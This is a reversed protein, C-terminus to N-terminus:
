FDYRLGVALRRELGPFYRYDGFASDAREAYRRDLANLLSVQLSFQSNINWASEIDVLKHGEYTLQNEPDLYYKGQWHWQASLETAPSPWWQARLTHENKPATDIQLGQLPIAANGGLVSPNNQYTHSALQGSATILLSSQTGYQIRYEAGLHRTEVGNVYRRETDQFIGNQNKMAYLSLEFFWQQEEGRIGLEVANTQEAKIDHTNATDPAQARYLETAQPARFSHALRGFGFLQESLAYSFGLHASPETFSDTRSIPRYFRCNIGAACASGDSLNNSYDYRQADIRLAFDLALSPTTQWFSGGYFAANQASVNFDYHAGVPFQDPSFPAETFQIESLDAWTQDFEQGWFIKSNAGFSRQWQLQWGLSDHSNEEVPQWPVFHMLFDMSNTRLYPTVLWESTQTKLRLRSFLRASTADRYAGSNLNQQSLQPDKYADKGEIFGATEQELNMLSLGTEVSRASDIQWSNKLSVKQQRFGSEDRFGDDETLSFLLATTQTSKNGQAQNGQGLEGSLRRYGLTNANLALQNETESAKPLHINLGGFQANGGVMSTHPGKYVEIQQAVEYHSDFLQNANCFGNARLAIGDETMGFAGCAGAGTFVPSRIATLHEQGSGRSIWVGPVSQLIQNLHEVKPSSIAETTVIDTTSTTQKLSRADREGFVVITELIGSDTAFAWAPLTSLCASLAAVSRCYDFFTM